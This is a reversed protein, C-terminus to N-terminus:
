VVSQCCCMMKIKERNRILSFYTCILWKIGSHGKQSVRLNRVRKIASNKKKSSIQRTLFLFFHVQKLLSFLFMNFKNKIKASTVLSADQRLLGRFELRQQLVLKHLNPSYGPMEPLFETCCQSLISKIFILKFM